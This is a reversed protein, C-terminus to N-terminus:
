ETDVGHEETNMKQYGNVRRTIGDRLSLVNFNILL